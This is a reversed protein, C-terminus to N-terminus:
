HCGMVLVVVPGGQRLGWMLCRASACGTDAAYVASTSQPSCLSCCSGGGGVGTAALHERGHLDVLFFKVTYTHGSSKRPPKRESQERKEEYSVFVPQSPAAGGGREGSDM